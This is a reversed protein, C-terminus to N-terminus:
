VSARTLRSTLERRYVVAAALGAVLLAAAIDLWFHNATALVTFAVWLPWCLWLVKFVRRRAIVALTVGVILADAVHLSPMAAFPNSALQVLSSSHNVFSHALTDVFGFDPFMRPPATPMAMYGVLGLVNALMITNRFRLFSENRRLYVWLLVLGLVAFQSLWYTASTLHLLFDSSTVFSQASLEFLMGARRELDIIKLGNEFAAATDRDAFGRALQYLLLFGFWIALQRALDRYGHPLFGGGPSTRTSM